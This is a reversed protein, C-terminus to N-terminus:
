PKEGTLDLARIANIATIKSLGSISSKSIAQVCAELVRKRDALLLDAVSKGRGTNYFEEAVEQPTPLKMADGEGVAFDDEDCECTVFPLGCLDCEDGLRGADDDYQDSMEDGEHSRLRPLALM